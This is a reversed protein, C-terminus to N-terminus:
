QMSVVTQIFSNGMDPAPEICLLAGSIETVLLMLVNFVSCQKDCSIFYSSINIPVNM